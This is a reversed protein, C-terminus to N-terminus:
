VDLRKLTKVKFQYLQLFQQIIEQEEPKFDFMILPASFRIGAIRIMGQQFPELMWTVPAFRGGVSFSIEPEQSYTIILGPVKQFPKAQQSAWAIMEDNHALLLGPIGTPKLPFLWVFGNSTEFESQLFKTYDDLNSNEDLHLWNHPINTGSILESIWPETGCSIISLKM